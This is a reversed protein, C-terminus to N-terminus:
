LIRAVGPVHSILLWALAFSGAIGGSALVLVKVEAPLAVPRLAVALGILVLEQVIFAGYASRSTVLGIWRLPRDLHRQVVGLLWVSGFVVLVSEFTAFGLSPGNWGGAVDEVGGLAGLGLMFVMLGAVALLTATRCHRHLQDPVAGLWGDRFGTVGLAFVAICGPWEWLQLGSLLSEGGIPFLLRVLFSAPAVAAALLLLHSARLTPVQYRAPRTRRVAVGGAYALSFILLVGVFWLPGMQIQPPKGLFEEGYSGTSEGLPHELAYSVSPGVLLVYVAFPVGLRLLRGNVYAGVGRRELSPRTLLGAVLFLLPIMMFGFPGVVILLTTETVPSLTVERVSDYPWLDMSDTYSLVAHVAIIAAIMIVKLNDLFM